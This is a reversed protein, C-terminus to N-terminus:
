IAARWGDPLKVVARRDAAVWVRSDKTTLIISIARWFNLDLYFMLPLLHTCFYFASREQRRDKGLSEIETFFGSDLVPGLDEDTRVYEMLTDHTEANLM